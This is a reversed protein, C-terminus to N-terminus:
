YNITIAPMTIDFSALRETNCFLLFLSTSRSLMPKIVFAITLPMPLPKLSLLTIMTYIDSFFIPIAIIPKQTAFAHFNQVYVQGLSQDTGWPQEDQFFQRVEDPVDTPTVGCQTNQALMSHIEQQEFLHDNTSSDIINPNRRAIKPSLNPSLPTKAHRKMHCQLDHKRATTHGCEICSFM